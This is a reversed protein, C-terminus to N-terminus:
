DNVLYKNNISEVFSIVHNIALARYELPHTTLREVSLLPHPNPENELNDKLAKLDRLMRGPNCPNEKCAYFCQWVTARYTSLDEENEIVFVRNTALGEIAAFITQCVDNIYPYSTLITPRFVMDVDTRKHWPLDSFMHVSRM